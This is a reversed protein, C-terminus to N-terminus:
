LCWLKQGSMWRFPHLQRETLILLITPPAFKSGLKFILIYTKSMLPTLHKYKWTSINVLFNFMPIQLQLFSTDANYLDNTHCKFGHFHISDSPSHLYVSFLLGLVLDWPVDLSLPQSGSTSVAFCVSLALLCSSSSSLCFDFSAFAAMLEFFLTQSSIRSKALSLNNRAKIVTVNSLPPASAKRCPLVPALFRLYCTFVIRKDHKVISSILSFPFTVSFRLLTM